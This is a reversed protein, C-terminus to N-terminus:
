VPASYIDKNRIKKYMGGRFGSASTRRLAHKFARLNNVLREPFRAIVFHKMASSRIAVKSIPKTWLLNEYDSQRPFPELLNVNAIKQALMMMYTEEGNVLTVREGLMSPDVVEFWGDRAPVETLVLKRVQFGNATAFVRFFLEPSFQYFGHGLFNNACTVSIFHGGVRVMRMCNAVSVPFNFIHELVGGDFLLSFSSVLGLPIPYNMDHVISCGQYQSVDISSESRSGLAKFLPEFYGDTERLMEVSSRGLSLGFHGLLRELDYPGIAIEQRGLTAADSFDVGLKQAYCLFKVVNYDLGM